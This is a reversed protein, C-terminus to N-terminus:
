SRVMNIAISPKDVQFRYLAKSTTQFDAYDNVSHIISQDLMEQCYKRIIDDTAKFRTKFWNNLDEGTVVNEFKKFLGQKETRLQISERILPALQDIRSLVYLFCQLIVVPM